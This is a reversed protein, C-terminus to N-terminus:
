PRGQSREGRFAFLFHPTRKEANRAVRILKGRGGARPIRDSAKESLVGVARHHLPLVVSEPDTQEPELGSRAVMRREAAAFRGQAVSPM